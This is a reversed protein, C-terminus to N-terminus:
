ECYYKNFAWVTTSRASTQTKTIVHRAVLGSLTAVVHARKLNTGDAWDTLSIENEKKGFDGYTRRLLYLLCRLERASFNGGALLELIKNHVKAWNNDPQIEAGGRDM